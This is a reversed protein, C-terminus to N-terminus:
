VQAIRALWSPMSVTTTSASFGPPVQRLTPQMGEFARIWAAPSYSDMARAASPLLASPMEVVVGVSSKAM